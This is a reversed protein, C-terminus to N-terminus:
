PKVCKEPKSEDCVLEEPPKCKGSHDLSVRARAAECANEYTKGDCGCVPNYQANCVEPVAKCSGQADAIKCQGAGVRCYQSGPCLTGLIGGCDLPEIPEIDKCRQAWEIALFTQAKHRISSLQAVFRKFNESGASFRAEACASLGFETSTAGGARPYYVYFIDVTGAAIADGIIERVLRLTTNDVSGQTSGVTINVARGYEDNQIDGQAFSTASLLLASGFLFIYILKKM